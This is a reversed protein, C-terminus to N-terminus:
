SVIWELIVRLLSNPAFLSRTTRNWLCRRCISNYFLLLAYFAHFWSWRDSRIFSLSRLRTVVAAAVPITIQTIYTIDHVWHRNSHRSTGLLLASRHFDLGRMNLDRKLVEEISWGFRSLEIKHSRTSRSHPFLMRFNIVQLM